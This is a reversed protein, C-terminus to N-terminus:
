SQAPTRQISEATARLTALREIIEKSNVFNATSDASPRLSDRAMSIIGLMERAVGSGPDAPMISCAYAEYEDLWSRLNNFDKDAM